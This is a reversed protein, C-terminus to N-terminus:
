EEGSALNDDSSAGATAHQPGPMAVVERYWGMLSQVVSEDCMGTSPGKLEKVDKMLGTLSPRQQAWEEDYEEDAELRNSGMVELCRVSLLVRLRTSLTRVIDDTLRDGGVGEAVRCLAIAAPRHWSYMLELAFQATRTRTFCRVTDLYSPGNRTMEAGWWLRSLGNRSWTGHYRWPHVKRNPRRFRAEVFDSCNLSLWAWIGADVALRRPIRLACHLRPALWPDMEETKLLTAARATLQKILDLDCSYETEETFRAFDSVLRGTEVFGEVITVLSDPKLRRIPEM